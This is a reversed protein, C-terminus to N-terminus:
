SGMIFIFNSEFFYKDKDWNSIGIGDISLNFKIYIGVQPVIGVEIL